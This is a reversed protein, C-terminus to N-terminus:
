KEHVGEGDWPGFWPDNATDRRRCSSSIMGFGRAPVCHKVPSPLSRRPWRNISMRPPLREGNGQVPEDIQRLLPLGRVFRLWLSPEM